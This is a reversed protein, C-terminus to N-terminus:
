GSFFERLVTKWVKGLGTRPDGRLMDIVAGLFPESPVGQPLFLPV